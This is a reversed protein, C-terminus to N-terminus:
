FALLQAGFSGMKPDEPRFYRACYFLVLSGVGLILIALVASLADMRFALEVRLDPIWPIIVSPPANPAGSALSQGSGIYRPYTIMLWIFAGAPVAALLYFASRGIRRFFLPAM